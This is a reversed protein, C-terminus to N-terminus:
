HLKRRKPKRGHHRPPPVGPEWWCYNEWFCPAWGNCTWRPRCLYAAREVPNSSSLAQRVARADLGPNAVAAQASETMIAASTLAVAAMSIASLLRTMAREQKPRRAMNDIKFHCSRM